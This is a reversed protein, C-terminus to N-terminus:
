DRCATFLKPVLEGAKGEFYDDVSLQQPIPEKNVCATRAGAQKALQILGAAPYVNGSTGINVFVECSSVADQIEDMQLPVEGFWIVHPRLLQNCCPSLPLGRSDCSFQGQVPGSEDFYASTDAFLDECQTCRSVGLSGHMLILRSHLLKQDSTVEAQAREHLGDINQSILTFSRGQKSCHVAYRALALHAANPKAKAVGVRRLSYFRWVLVPDREFAEPTAVDEVRHKEWLGDADRFTSIGSEASIGAGTMVVINQFRDPIM